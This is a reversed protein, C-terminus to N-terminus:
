QAQEKGQATALPRIRMASIDSRWVQGASRWPIQACCFSDVVRLLSHIGHRRGVLENLGQHIAERGEPRVELIVQLVPAERRVDKEADTVTEGVADDLRVLMVISTVQVPPADQVVQVLMEISAITVSQNHPGVM